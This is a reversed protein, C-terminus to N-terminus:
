KANGPSKMKALVPPPGEIIVLMILMQVDLIRIFPYNNFFDFFKTYHFNTIGIIFHYLITWTSGNM